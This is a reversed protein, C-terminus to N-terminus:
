LARVRLIVGAGLELEVQWHSNNDPVHLTPATKAVSETIDVFKDAASPETLVKQWRYLSSTAIRHQKCFASRTLGSINFEDLLAQWQTETRMVRNTPKRPPQSSLDIASALTTM